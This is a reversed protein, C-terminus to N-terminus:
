KKFNIWKLYSKRFELGRTVLIQMRIEKSIKAVNVDKSSYNKRIFKTIKKLAKISTAWLNLLCQKEMDNIKSGRIKKEQHNNEYFM